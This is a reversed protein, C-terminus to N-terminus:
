KKLTYGMGRSAPWVEKFRYQQYLKYAEGDAILNIYCTEPINEQIFEDLKQMILKSLGKGQHPPLICIDAVQCHCGGDGILRGMGIIEDSDENIVVVSCLSHNVGITAAKVTKASLGCNVRLDIYTQPEITQYRAIYSM